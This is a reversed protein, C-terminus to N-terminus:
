LEITETDTPGRGYMISFEMAIQRTPFAPDSLWYSAGGEFGRGGIQAHQLRLGRMWQRTQEVRELLSPDSGRAVSVDAGARVNLGKAQQVILLLKMITATRTSGQDDERQWQLLVRWRGPSQALKALTDDVTGSLEFVGGAAEVKTKLYDGAANLITTADM